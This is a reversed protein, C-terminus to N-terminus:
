KVWARLRSGRGYHVGRAGEGSGWTTFIDDVDDTVTLPDLVSWDVPTVGDAALTVRVRSREEPTLDDPLYAAHPSVPLVQVGGDYYCVALRGDVPTRMAILVRNAESDPPASWDLAYSRAWDLNAEEAIARYPRPPDLVLSEAYRPSIFIDPDVEQVSALHEFIQATVAMAEEPGGLTRHHFAPWSRQTDRRYLRLVAYIDKLRNQEETLLAKRERAAQYAAREDESWRDEAIQVPEVQVPPGGGCGAGIAAAGCLGIWM